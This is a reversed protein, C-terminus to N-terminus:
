AQREMWYQIGIDAVVIRCRGQQHSATNSHIRIRDSNGEATNFVSSEILVIVAFAPLCALSCTLWSTYAFVTTLSLGRANKMKGVRASGVM